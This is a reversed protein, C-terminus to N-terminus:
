VIAVDGRDRLYGIMATVSGFHEIVVDGPDIAIGLQQELWGVVRVIGLSDVLGSMVLDTDADVPEDLLSVETDIFAILGAAFAPQDQTTSSM